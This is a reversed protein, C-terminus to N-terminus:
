THPPLQSPVTPRRRACSQYHLTALASMVVFAGGIGLPAGAAARVVNTGGWVGSWELGVTVISPIAGLFCIARADLSTLATPHAGRFRAAAFAAAAVAAGAYIGLCRGCVPLQLGGLHFSREPIQHCIVSGIGYTLAALSAPGIPSALILALWVISVVAVGPALV